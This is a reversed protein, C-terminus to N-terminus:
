REGHSKGKPVWPSYLGLGDGRRQAGIVPDGWLASVVNRKPGSATESSHAERGGPRGGEPGSFDVAKVLNHIPGRQREFQEFIEPM